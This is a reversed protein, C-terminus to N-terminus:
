TALPHRQLLGDFRRFGRDASLLTAGNEVAYAGIFADPIDNGAASIQDALDRFCRWQRESSHLLISAPGSLVDNVFAWATSPSSPPAFAAPNTVIRLFGSIVVDPLGVPETGNVLEVLRDRQVDHDIMDERHATVLVNVDLCLM